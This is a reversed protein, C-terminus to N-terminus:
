MCCVCMCRKLYGGVRFMEGQLTQSVFMGCWAWGFHVCHCRTHSITIIVVTRSPIPPSSPSFQKTKKHTHSQACQTACVSVYTDPVCLQHHTDVCFCVSMNEASPTFNVPARSQMPVLTDDCWHEPRGGHRAIMVPQVSACVHAQKPIHAGVHRGCLHAFHTTAVSTGGNRVPEM